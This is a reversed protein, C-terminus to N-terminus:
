GLDSASPWHAGTMQSSETTVLRLASDCFGCLHNRHLDSEAACGARILSFATVNSDTTVMLTAGYTASSPASTINPRTALTEDANFLYPPSFIEADNHNAGDTLGCTTGCLGGGGTFVRADPLLVQM